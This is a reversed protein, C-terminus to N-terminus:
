QLAECGPTTERRPNAKAYLSEISTFEKEDLLTLDVNDVQGTLETAAGLALHVVRQLSELAGALQRVDKSEPEGKLAAIKKLILARLKAAADLDAANQRALEDVVNTIIKRTTNEQLRHVRKARDETWKGRSAMASVTGPTSGYQEAIDQMTLVNSNVYAAKASVWDIRKM